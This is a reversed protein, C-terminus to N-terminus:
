SRPQGRVARRWFARGHGAGQKIEGGGVWAQCADEAVRV